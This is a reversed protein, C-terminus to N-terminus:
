FYAAQRLCADARASAELLTASSGEAVSVVFSGNVGDADEKTEKEKSFFDAGRFAVWADHSARHCSENPFENQDRERRFADLEARALSVARTTAASSTRESRQRNANKKLDDEPYARAVCGFALRENKDGSVFAHPQFAGTEVARRLARREADYLARFSELSARLIRTTNTCSPPEVDSTADADKDEITRLKSIENAITERWSAMVRRDDFFDDPGDGDDNSTLTWAFTAADGFERDAVRIVAVGFANPDADAHAFIFTEEDEDSFYERSTEDPGSFFADDNREDDGLGTEKAAPGSSTKESGLGFGRLAEMAAKAELGIRFACSDISADSIERSTTKKEKTSRRTADEESSGCETAFRFWFAGADRSVRFEAAFRAMARSSAAAARCSGDAAHYVAASAAVACSGRRRLASAVTDLVRSAVRRPSLDPKKTGNSLERDDERSPNRKGEEFDREAPEGNRENGENSTEVFASPDRPNALALPEDDRAHTLANVTDRKQVDSRKATSAHFEKSSGDSKDLSSNLCSLGLAAVFPALRRRTQHVRCLKKDNEEGSHVRESERLSKTGKSLASQVSGHVLEYDEHADKLMRLLAHDRVDREPAARKDVSLLWWIHPECELCAVRRADAALVLSRRPSPEASPETSSSAVLHARRPTEARADAFPALFGTLGQALGVAAACEDRATSSPFVGLLKEHEAGEGRGLRDDFVFVRAVPPHADSAAGHHAM